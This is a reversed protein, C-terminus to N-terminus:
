LDREPKGRERLWSRAADPDNGVTDAEDIRRRTEIETKLDRLDRKAKADARGKAYLGLAGLLAALIAAIPKWFTLLLGTM